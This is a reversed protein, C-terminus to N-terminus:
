YSFTVDVYPERGSGAACSGGGLESACFDAGNSGSSEFTVGNNASGNLWAQMLTALPTAFRNNATPTFNHFRTGARTPANGWTIGNVTWGGTVEFVDVRAGEDYCFLSLSAASVTIPSSISSFATLPVRVFTRYREGSGNDVLLRESFNFNTGSSQEHTYADELGTIRLTGSCTGSNCSLTQGGVVCSKACSGCREPTSLSDCVNDGDCDEEGGGCTVATTSSSTSPDTTSSTSTSTSPDTTSSTSTSTSADTTSSTSTSTSPDTTSSTSTSTSPDTSASSATTSSGGTSSTATTSGTSTTSGTGTSATGGSTTTATTSGSTTDTTATGATTSASSGTSATSGGTATTSGSGSASSGSGTADGMTEATDFTDTGASAGTTTPTASSAGATTPGFGFEDADGDACAPLLLLLSSLAPALRRPAGSTM